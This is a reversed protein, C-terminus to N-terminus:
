ERMRRKITLELMGCHRWKTSIRPREHRKGMGRSINAQRWVVTETNYAGRKRSKQVNDLLYRVGSEGAKQCRKVLSLSSQSEPLDARSAQHERTSWALAGDEPHLGERDGGGSGSTDCENGRNKLIWKGLKAVLPVCALSCVSIFLAITFLINGPDITSEVYNDYSLEDCNDTWLARNALEDM